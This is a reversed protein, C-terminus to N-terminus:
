EGPPLDLVERVKRALSLPTFPKQLFHARGKRVEQRLVADETFGSMFLVRQGPYRAEVQAALDPGSMGPMVVDTLLLDVGQGSEALRALAAAGDSAELVTFGSLRLIEVSVQRVDPEDEVVLITENGRAGRLERSLGSSDAMGQVSPLWIRFTTGRGPESEVELFGQHAQVIGYVTALGLGTGKGAEKTTFFPEFIRARTAEDMGCGTDRVSIQVHPGPRVNPHRAARASDVEVLATDIALEGGTPMADRANVALNFIVQELHGPDARVLGVGPQHTMSLRVDAGILRALMKHLNNLLVVPDLVVSRVSQRRSFALLQRTLRSAQEGAKLIQQAYEELDRAAVNGRSLLEAYGSIVTLLNNFDHAVSAALRGIAEMKQAQRYQEELQRTETLDRAHLALCDPRGTEDRQVQLHLWVPVERGDNRRLTSPGRWSGQGLAAPLAQELFAEYARAPQWAGVHDGPPGQEPLGLLHRGARNLYRPQGAPTILAVLDPAEDLIAALRERDIAAPLPPAQDALAERVTDALRALDRGPLYHNAGARLAAVAEQVQGGPLDALVVVPTRVGRQRLNRLFAHEGGGLLALDALIVDPPSALLAELETLNTAVAAQLDFGAARLADQIRGAMEADAQLLVARLRTM